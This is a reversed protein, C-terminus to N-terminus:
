RPYSYSENMTAPAAGRWGIGITADCRSAKKKASPYEVFMVLFLASGFGRVAVDRCKKNRKGEGKRPENGEEQM